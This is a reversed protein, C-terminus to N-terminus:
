FAYKASFQFRSMDGDLGTEIERNAYTYEAGVTLSSTPSYLYNIRASYTSSTATEGTLAVDNDVELASFMINTRAKASWVHRLAISYGYSDIAELDGNENIVAGNSANLATYRGLGAGTNFMVRLDDGAGFNIKSTIAIGYSTENSDIDAGNDYSLQRVLGAVKIHGWSSKMTYAAILDPVSNDDAVIRSGGEYPTITSEPNELAIEFGNNAYRVMTQRGFVTGDTVGIFDLSEPLTAVDMFTTWTQGVLWNKYQLFAHRVRPVYSNSIREDGGATVMFDMEFVGKVTDGEETPTTTTFRFRSQRIHADFQTGEDEGGVPTLSPIYFDRGISGSSLTGDSYNSVIADAKVYGSFQVDTGALNAAFATSTASIGIVPLALALSTKKLTNKM